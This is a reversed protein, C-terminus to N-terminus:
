ASLDFYFRSEWMLAPSDCLLLKEGRLSSLSVSGYFLSPDPANM